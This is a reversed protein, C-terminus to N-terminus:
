QQVGHEKQWRQKAAERQAPTMKEWEAKRAEWRKKAADKQAPTMKDWEAHRKEMRARQAEDHVMAPPMMASHPGNHNCMGQKRSEMLKTYEDRQAPTLKEWAEQPLSGPQMFFPANAHPAMDQKTGDVHNNYTDTYQPNGYSDKQFQRSWWGDNAFAPMALSGFAVLALAFTATRANKM